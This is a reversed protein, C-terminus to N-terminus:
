FKPYFNMQIQLGSYERFKIRLHSGECFPKNNTAESRRIKKRLVVFIAKPLIDL